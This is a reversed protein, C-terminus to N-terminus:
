HHGPHKGTNAGPGGFGARRKSELSFVAGANVRSRHFPSGGVEFGFHHEHRARHGEHGRQARPLGARDPLVLIPEDAHVGGGERIRGVAHVFGPQGNASKEKRAEGSVLLQFGVLLSRGYAIDIKDFL